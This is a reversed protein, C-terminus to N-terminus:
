RLRKWFHRRRPKIRRLESEMASQLLPREDAAVWGAGLFSEILRTMEIRLLNREARRFNTERLWVRKFLDATAEPLEGWLLELAKRRVASGEARQKERHKVSIAGPHRRYLMLIDPLNAFRTQQILRTWLETDDATRCDEDYGGAVVLLERRIMTTPDAVSASFYLGWTVLAHELPLNSEFRFGLDQDVVHINGGVVGIPPNADLFNVQRRLRDPLCIDDNGMMAVYEGSAAAIGHNRTSAIGRNERLPMFQIRSDRRAYAEVIAASGDTSGDDVIILEFDPYTQGLVSAIAEALYRESNYVPMVVSVRPM